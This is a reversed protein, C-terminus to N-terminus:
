QVKRINQMFAACATRRALDNTGAMIVAVDYRQVLDCWDWGVM